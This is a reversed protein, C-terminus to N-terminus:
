RRRKGHIFVQDWLGSITQEMAKTLAQGARTRKEMADVFEVEWATLRFTDSDLDVLQALQDTITLPPM